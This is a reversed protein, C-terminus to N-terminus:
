TVSLREEKPIVRRQDRCRSGPVHNAATVPRFIPNDRINQTGQIATTRKLNTRRVGCPGPLMHELARCSVQQEALVKQIAVLVANAGPIESGCCIVVASHPTEQGLKLAIPGVEFPM